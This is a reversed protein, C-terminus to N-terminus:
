NNGREFQETLPFFMVTLNHPINLLVKFNWRKYLHAFLLHTVCINMNIFSFNKISINLLIRKFTSWRPSYEEQLKILYEHLGLKCYFCILNSNFIQLFDGAANKCSLNHKIISYLSNILPIDVLSYSLHVSSLCLVLEVQINYKSTHEAQLKCILYFIILLSQQCKGINRAFQTHICGNLNLLKKKCKEEGVYM